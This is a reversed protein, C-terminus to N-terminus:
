KKKALFYFQIKQCYLAEQSRPRTVVTDKCFAECRMSLYVSLEDTHNPVGERGVDGESVRKEVDSVMDLIRHTIADCLIVVTIIIKLAVMTGSSFNDHRYIHSHSMSELTWAQKIATATESTYHEQRELGSHCQQKSAQQSPISGATKLWLWLIQIWLPLMEAPPLLHLGAQLNKTSIM